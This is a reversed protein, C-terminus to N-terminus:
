LLPNNQIADDRGSSCPPSRYPIPFGDDREVRGHNTLDDGLGYGHAAGIDSHRGRHGRQRLPTVGMGEARNGNRGREQQHEKGGM